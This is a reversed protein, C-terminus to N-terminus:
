PKSGVPTLTHLKDQSQSRSRGASFNVAPMFPEAASSLQGQDWARLRNQAGSESAANKAAM